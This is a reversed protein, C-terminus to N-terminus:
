LMNHNMVENPLPTFCGAMTISVGGPNDIEPLTEPASESPPRPPNSRLAEGRAPHQPDSGCPAEPLNLNAGELIPPPNHPDVALAPAASLLVMAVVTSLLLTRRLM